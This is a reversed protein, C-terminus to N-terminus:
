LFLTKQPELHINKVKSGFEDQNMRLMNKTFMDHPPTFYNFIMGM